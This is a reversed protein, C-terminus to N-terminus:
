RRRAKCAAAEGARAGRCLAGASLLADRAPPDGRECVARVAGDARPAGLRARARPLREVAPGSGHHEEGAPLKGEARPHRGRRFRDGGHARALGARAPESRVSRRGASRARYRRRARRQARVGARAPKRAPGAARPRDCSRRRERARHAWAGRQQGRRVRDCGAGQCDAGRGARHRRGRREGTGDRRAPVPRARHPRFARDPVGPGDGGGGRVVDGGSNHCVADKAAVQEAYAGYELHVAVRDGPKCHTARSGVARVIGAADKGLSFPRPPLIQYTGGIAPLDPYNVGIAKVDVLVQEDGIAPTPIDEIRM